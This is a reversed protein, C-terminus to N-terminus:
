NAPTFAAAGQAALYDALYADVPQELAEASRAPLLPKGNGLAALRQWNEETLAVSYSLEPLLDAPLAVQIGKPKAADLAALERGTLTVRVVRRREDGPVWVMAVANRDVNGRKITGRVSDADAIGVESDTARQLARAVVGATGARDYDAPSECLVELIEPTHREEQKRVWAALEADIPTTEARMPVMEYSWSDISDAQVDVELALRGVHEALDGASVILVGSPELVIPEQKLEHTHGAIFLDFEPVGAAIKRCEVTGAHALCVLLDVETRLKEVEARTTQIAYEVFRKASPGQGSYLGLAEPDLADREAGRATFVRSIGVIGVRVGNREVVCSAPFKGFAPSDAPVNATLTPFKATKQLRLLADLGYAFDHNGVAAADYGARNMAQVTVRGLTAVGIFDGKELWDGADLLLVDDREARLQKAYGAVYPLGGLGDTRPRVHDHLDNTHLIVLSRLADQSAAIAAPVLLASLVLVLFRNHM